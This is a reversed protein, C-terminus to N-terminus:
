KLLTRIVCPEIGWAYLSQMVVPRYRRVSLAPLCPQCYHRVRMCIIAEPDKQRAGIYEQLCNATAAKGKSGPKATTLWKPEIGLCNDYNILPLLPKVHTRHCFLLVFCEQKSCGNNGQCYRLIFSGNTIHYQHLFCGQDALYHIGHAFLCTSNSALTYFYHCWEM